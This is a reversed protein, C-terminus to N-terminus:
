TCKVIDVISISCAFDFVVRSQNIIGVVTRRYTISLYGIYVDKDCKINWRIAGAVGIDRSLSQSPGYLHLVTYCYCAGVAQSNQLVKYFHYCDEQGVDM